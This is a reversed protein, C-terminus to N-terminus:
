SARASGREGDCDVRRSRGQPYTRSDHSRLLAHSPQAQTQDPGGDRDRAGFRDGDTAADSRPRVKKNEAKKNEGKHGIDAKVAGQPRAMPPCCYSKANEGKTECSIEHLNAIEAAGAQANGRDTEAAIVEAQAGVQFGRALHDV